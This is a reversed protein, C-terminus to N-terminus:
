LGRQLYVGVRLNGRTKKADCEICDPSVGALHRMDMVPLRHVGGLWDATGSWMSNEADKTLEWKREQTMVVKAEVWEKAEYCELAKKLFNVEKFSKGVEPIKSLMMLVTLVSDLSCTNTLM